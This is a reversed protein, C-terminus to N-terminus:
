MRVPFRPDVIKIRDKLTAISNLIQNVGFSKFFTDRNNKYLANIDGSNEEDYLGTSKVEALFIKNNFRIYIDTIEIEDNAM